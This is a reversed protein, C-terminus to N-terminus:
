GPFVVRYGACGGIPAPRTPSQRVWATPKIVPNRYLEDNGTPQLGGPLPSWRAGALHWRLYTNELVILQYTKPNAPIRRRTPRGTWRFSRIAEWTPTSWRVFMRSTRIPRFPSRTVRLTAPALPTPPCRTHCDAPRRALRRTLPPFRTTRGAQRLRPEAPWDPPNAPTERSPARTPPQMSHAGSATPTVAPASACISLRESPQRHVLGLLYLPQLRRGRGSCGALWLGFVVPCILAIKPRM